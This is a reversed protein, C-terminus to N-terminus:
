AGHRPHAKKIFKTTKYITLFTLGNLLVLAVPPIIHKIIFTWFVYAQANYALDTGYVILTGYDLFIPFIVVFCFIIVPIIFFWSRRSFQLHPHCIGFYRELSIAVTM